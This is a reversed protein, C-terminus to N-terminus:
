SPSGESSNAPAAGAHRQRLKRLLRGARTTVGSLSVPELAAIRSSRRRGRLLAMEVLALASPLSAGAFTGGAHTEAPEDQPGAVPAPLITGVGVEMLPLEDVAPIAMGAAPLAELAAQDPAPELPAPLEPVEADGKKLPVAPKELDDFNIPKGDRLLVDLIIRETAVGTGTGRQWVFQYRGDPLKSFLAKLSDSTLNGINLDSDEGLVFDMASEDPHLPDTPVIRMVLRDTPAASAGAPNSQNAAFSSQGAASAASGGATVFQVPLEPFLGFGTSGFSKLDTGALGIGPSTLVFQQHTVTVSQGAVFFAVSPDGTVTVTPAFFTTGGLQAFNGGATNAQISALSYTHAFTQSGANLASFSVSTGDGWNVVVSFNQEVPRGYTINITVTGDIAITIGPHVQVPTVSLFPPEAITVGTGTRIDFL